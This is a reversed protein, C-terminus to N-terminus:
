ADQQVPFWIDLSLLACRINAQTKLQSLSYTLHEPLAQCFEDALSYDAFTYNISNSPGCRSGKRYVKVTWIMVARSKTM